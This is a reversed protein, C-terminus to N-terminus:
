FIQIIARIHHKSVQLNTQVSERMYVPMNAACSLNTFLPLQKTTYFANRDSDRDGADLDAISLEQFVKNEHGRNEKTKETTKILQCRIFAEIPCKCSSTM